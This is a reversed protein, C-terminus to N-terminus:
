SGRNASTRNTFKIFDIDSVSSEICQHNIPSFPSQIRNSRYIPSFPPSNLNENQSNISKSPTSKSSTSKFTLVSRSFICNSKENLHELDLSNEYVTSDDSELSNSLPSQFQIRRAKNLKDDNKSKTPTKCNSSVERLVVFSHLDDQEVIYRKKNKGNTLYDKFQELYPFIM